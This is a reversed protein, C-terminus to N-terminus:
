VHEIEHRLVFWFNDIRDHLITMAVVPSRDDLWFCAGDIRSSPMPEVIVFRVGCEALVRSVHRAEEPASRMASLRDLAGRLLAPTYAPPVAAAEAVQKARYVWAEQAPSPPGSRSAAFPLSRAQDVSEIRYFQLVRTELIDVDSSKEIWGRKMMERVPFRERLRAERAISAPAPATRSLEFLRFATELNMWFQPSTGLAASFVIATEPTIGRKGALIESILRAPRSIMKAFEDQTWGREELEDRLFEGPPFAEAAIFADTM